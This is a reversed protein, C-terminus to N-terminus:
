TLERNKKRYEGPTMGVKKKFQSNLYNGHCYGTEEAIEMITKKTQTLLIQARKIKISDLYETYSRGMQASFVRSFYAASFGVAKAAEELSPNNMFNREIYAVADMIPPTLPISNTVVNSVSENEEYITFLLRFLMGQLILERYPLEKQYEEEMELFMRCIKEQSAKSFSFITQTELKEVVTRGVTQILPEAFTTTFRILISEYAEKSETVMKHYIYPHTIGVMGATADYTKTSTIVKQGGSIIYGVEYYDKTMFATQGNEESISHNRGIYIQSIKQGLKPM